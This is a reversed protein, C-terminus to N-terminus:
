RVKVGNLTAGADMQLALYKRGGAEACFVADPVDTAARVTAGPLEISIKKEDVVNGLVLPRSGLFTEWAIACRLCEDDSAGSEALIRELDGAELMGVEPSDKREERLCLLGRHIRDVTGYDGHEGLAEELIRCLLERQTDASIVLEEGALFQILKEPLDKGTYILIGDPDARRGTFAPYIFGADPMGAALEAKGPLFRGTEPDYKLVPKTPQVPCICCHLYDYVYDSENQGPIDYISHLLLVLYGGETEYNETIGAVLDRVADRGGTRDVTMGELLRRGEPEEGPVSGPLKMDLLNKGCRGRFSKRFIELYRLLEGDPIGRLDLLYEAKVNKESDVYFGALRDACFFEPRYRRRIESIEKRNM